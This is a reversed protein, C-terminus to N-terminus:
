RKRYIINIVYCLHLSAIDPNLILVFLGRIESRQM